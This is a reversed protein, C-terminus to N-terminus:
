ARRRRAAFLALVGAAPLSGGTGNCGCGAGVEDFMVPRGPTHDGPDADLDPGEDMGSDDVQPEGTDVPVDTDTDDTDVEDDGPFLAISCWDQSASLGSACTGELYGDIDAHITYNGYPVGAFSYLGDSGTTTTDGTEAIWVTAGVLNGNTNYIDSDRVFGVIEGTPDSTEGGVLSMYYDWDWCDGPDTHHGSGGYGSGDPDPVENHGIIHSRDLPVGQRAAIDATLAASERYLAETYYSCDDVYGEHEIGVSRENYDWNGAHWGVDEEWLMQTVAGDSSRVVYHASAEADCNQFWNYCGSYSGQVTHIVVMDIDGGGRSYDSYNCSAAAVFQDVVASDGSAPPPAAFEPTVVQPPVSFSGLPGDVVFGSELLEYVYRTYMAQHAPEDRGSFAAVASQWADLDATSPLAGGHHSQAYDALLAAAARVQIKWDRLVWNPNVAILASATELSPGGSADAEVFDFMGEGGWASETGPRLRTAEWGIAYLIEVPVGQEAAAAEFTSQLPSPAAAALALLHLIM